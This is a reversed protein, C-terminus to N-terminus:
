VGLENKLKQLKDEGTSEQKENYSNIVMDRTIDGLRGSIIANRIVNIENLFIDIAIRMERGSVVDDNYNELRTRFNNILTNMTDDFYSTNTHLKSILHQPSYLAELTQEIFDIENSPILFKGRVKVIKSDRIEKGELRIRTKRIHDRAVMMIKLLADKTDETNPETYTNDEINEELGTNETNIGLDILAQQYDEDQFEDRLIENIRIQEYESDGYEEQLELLRDEVEEKNNM